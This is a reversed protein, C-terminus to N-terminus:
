VLLMRAPYHGGRLQVPTELVDSKVKDLYYSLTTSSAKSKDPLQLRKISPIKLM